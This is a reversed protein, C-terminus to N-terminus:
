TEISGSESPKSWIRTNLNLDDAMGIVFSMLGYYGTLKELSDMRRWLGPTFTNVAMPIAVYVRGGAFSMSMRDGCRSKLAMIREMMGPTLLYRSEVQDSSRVTFAQNFGPHELHVYDQRIRSFFGSGGAALCTVGYFHKNCDASFLLGQFVERYETRTTTTTHGDSDTDTDTVEHREEAHVMSFRIQTQGAYGEILDCGHYRDPAIFLGCNCFEEEPISGHPTYTLREGLSRVLGPMVSARFDAALGAKHRSTIYVCVILAIMFSIIGTLAQNDKDAYLTVFLAMALLGAAWNRIVALRRRRGAELSELVGGMGAYLTDMVNM